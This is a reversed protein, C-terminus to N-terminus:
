TPAVQPGPIPPQMQGDRYGGIVCHVGILVLSFTYIRTLTCSVCVFVWVCRVCLVWVWGGVWVCVCVSKCTTEGSSTFGWSYLRWVQEVPICGSM